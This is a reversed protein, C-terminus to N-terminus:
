MGVSRASLEAFARDLADRRPECAAEIADFLADRVSAVTPDRPSEASRHHRLSPTLFRSVEDAGLDADIVGAPLLSATREVVSRWDRMLMDFSLIARPHGRSYRESMVVHELWACEAEARPLGNRKALSAAVEAPERVALLAAAPRDLRALARRWLPMLRCIRPEKVIWCSSRPADSWEDTVISVLQDEAARADPSDFWASPVPRGELMHTGIKWFLVEHFEILKRSEWYGLDNDGAVPEFLTKPLAGGCLSLVRTLASTGSRHMGLVLLVPGPSSAEAVSM